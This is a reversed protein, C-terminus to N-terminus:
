HRKEGSFYLFAQPQAPILLLRVLAFLAVLCFSGLTRQSCSPASELRASIEKEKDM